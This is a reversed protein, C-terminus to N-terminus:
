FGHQKSAAQVLPKTKRSISFHIIESTGLNGAKDKAYVALTHSGESLGHLTTNGTITVLNQGDLSYAMWSAPEDVTFILPIDSVTYTKNEPSLITITPSKVDVPAAIKVLWINGPASEGAPKIGPM